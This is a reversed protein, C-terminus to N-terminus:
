SRGPEDVGAVGGGARQQEHREAPWSAWEPPSTRKLEEYWDDIEDGTPRAPWEGNLYVWIPSWANDPRGLHPHWHFVGPRIEFLLKQWIDQGV